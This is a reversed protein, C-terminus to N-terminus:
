RAAHAYKRAPLRIARTADYWVFLLVETTITLAVVLVQIEMVTM